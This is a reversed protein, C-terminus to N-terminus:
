SLLAGEDAVPVVGVADVCHRYASGELAEVAQIRHDAALILDVRVISIAHVGGSLLAQFRCCCSASAVGVKRWRACEPLVEIYSVHWREGARVAVARTLVAVIGRTRVLVARQSQDVESCAIVEGGHLVVPLILDCLPVCLPSGAM